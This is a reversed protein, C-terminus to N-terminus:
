ISSSGFWLPLIESGLESTRVHSGGCYTIPSPFAAHKTKGMSSLRLSNALAISDAIAGFRFLASRGFCCDGPLWLRLRCTRETRPWRGSATRLYQPLNPREDRIRRVLDRVRMKDYEETWMPPTHMFGGIYWDAPGFFRDMPEDIGTESRKTKNEM